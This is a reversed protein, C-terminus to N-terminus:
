AVFMWDWLNTGNKLDLNRGHFVSGYQDATVLSTCGAIAGHEYGVADWLLQQMTAKSHNVVKYIGRLEDVMEQDFTVDALFQARQEPTHKPPGAAFLKEMRPIIHDM